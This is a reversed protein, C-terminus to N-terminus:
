KQTNWITIRIWSKVSNKGSCSLATTLIKTTDAAEASTKAELETSHWINLHFAPSVLMLTYAM